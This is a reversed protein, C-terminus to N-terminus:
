TKACRGKLGMKGKESLRYFAKECLYGKGAMPKNRRDKRNRGKKTLLQKDKKPRRKRRKASLFHVEVPCLRRTSLVDSVM